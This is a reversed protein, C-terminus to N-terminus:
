YLSIDSRTFECEPKVNVVNCHDLFIRLPFSFGQVEIGGVVFFNREWIDTLVHPM